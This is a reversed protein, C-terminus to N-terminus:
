QLRRNADKFLKEIRNLEDFAKKRKERIRKELEDEGSGELSKLMKGYKMFEDEVDYYHERIQAFHADRDKENKEKEKDNENNDKEDCGPVHKYQNCGKAASVNEYEAFVGKYMEEITKM